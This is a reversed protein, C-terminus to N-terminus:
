TVRSCRFRSSALHEVLECSEAFALDQEVQLADGDVRVLEEAELDVRAGGGDGLEHEPDAVQL